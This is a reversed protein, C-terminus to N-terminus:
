LFSIKSRISPSSLQICSADSSKTSDKNYKKMMSEVLNDSADQMWSEEGDILLLIDNKHAANCVKDFRALARNWEAQEESNLTQGEGLKEYLEFRGFGTPKFVVFPISKKEKAFDIIKLAMQMADDFHAEDEKGLKFEEQPFYYTQNILDSYKTNM